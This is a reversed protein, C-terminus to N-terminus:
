IVLDLESLYLYICYDNINYSLYKQLKINIINFLIHSEYGPRREFQTM